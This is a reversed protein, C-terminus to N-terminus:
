NRIQFFVPQFRDDRRKEFHKLRAKVEGHRYDNRVNDFFAYFGSVSAIYEAAEGYEYKHRKGTKGAGNNRLIKGCLCCDSRSGPKAM